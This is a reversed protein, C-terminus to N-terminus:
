RLRLFAFAAVLGVLLALGLGVIVWMTRRDAGFTQAAAGGRNQELAAGIAVGIAAGMAIGVPLSDLAVGLAVGFGTGIAIGVGIM